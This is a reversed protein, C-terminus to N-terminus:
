IIWVALPIDHNGVACQSLDSICYCHSQYISDLSWRSLTNANWHKRGPPLTVTLAGMKEVCLMGQVLLNL